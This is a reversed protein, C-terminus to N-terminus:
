SGVKIDNDHSVGYFSMTWIESQSFSASSHYNTIPTRVQSYNSRYAINFCSSNKPSLGDEFKPTNMLPSHVCTSSCHWVATWSRTFLPRQCVIKNMSPGFLRTWSRSFFGSWWRNQQHLPNKQQEHVFKYQQEHVIFFLRELVFM